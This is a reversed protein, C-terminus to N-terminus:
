TSLSRRRAFGAKTLTPLAERVAGLRCWTALAAQLEPMTLASPQVVGYRAGAVERSVRPKAPDARLFPCSPAVLSLWRNRNDRHM